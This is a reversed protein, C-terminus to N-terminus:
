GIILPATTITPYFHERITLAANDPIVFGPLPLGKQKLPCPAARSETRFLALPYFGFLLLRCRSSLDRCSLAACRRGLM